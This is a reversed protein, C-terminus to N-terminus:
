EEPWYDSNTEPRADIKSAVGSRVLDMEYVQVVFDAHLKLYSSFNRGRKEPPYGNLFEVAAVHKDRTKMYRISPIMDYDGSLVVAVDYNGALAVMDVALSTDLGKEEMSFNMFDVRWRGCEIIDIFDTATRVAHYFRKMGELRERLGGYWRQFEELCL